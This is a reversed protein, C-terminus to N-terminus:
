CCGRLEHPHDDHDQYGDEKGSLRCATTCRAANERSGNHSDHQHPAKGTDAFVLHRLQSFSDGSYAPQVQAVNDHTDNDGRGYITCQIPAPRGRGHFSTPIFLTRWFNGATSSARALGPSTPIPMSPMSATAAFPLSNPGVKM